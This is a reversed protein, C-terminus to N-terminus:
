RGWRACAPAARGPEPPRVALAATAAPAPRSAGAASPVAPCTVACRSCTLGATGSLLRCLRTQLWPHAGRRALGPDLAQQLARLGRGRLPSRGPPMRTKRVLEHACRRECRRGGQRCQGVGWGNVRGRSGPRISNQRRPLAGEGCTKASGQAASKKRGSGVWVACAARLLPQQRNKLPNQRFKNNFFCAQFARPRRYRRFM